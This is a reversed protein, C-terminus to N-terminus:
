HHHPVAVRKTSALHLAASLGALGRMLEIDDGAEGVAAAAHSAAVGIAPLLVLEETKWVLELGLLWRARHSCADPADGAASQPRAASGAEAQADARQAPHLETPAFVDLDLPLRISLACSATAARSRSAGTHWHTPRSSPRSRSMTAPIAPWCARSGLPVPLHRGPDATLQMTTTLWAAGSNPPM